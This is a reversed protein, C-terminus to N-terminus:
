ATHSSPTLLCGPSFGSNCLLLLTAKSERDLGQFVKRSLAAPTEESFILRVKDASGLCLTHMGEINHTLRNYNVEDVIEQVLLFTNQPQPAAKQSASLATVM